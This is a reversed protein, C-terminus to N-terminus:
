ERIRQLTMSRMEKEQKEKEKENPPLPTTCLFYEICITLFLNSVIITLIFFLTSFLEESKNEKAIIPVLGDIIDWSFLMVLALCVVHFCRYRKRTIIEEPLSSTKDRRTIKRTLIKQTGMQIEMMLRYITLLVIIIFAAGHIKISVFVIQLLIISLLFFVGIHVLGLIRAMRSHDIPTLLEFQKVIWQTNKISSNDFKSFM